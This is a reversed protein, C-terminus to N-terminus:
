DLGEAKIIKAYEWASARITRKMTTRDVSVLGFKPWFGKDWEFNDLLSWCMFGRVDAGETMAAHVNRLLNKIYWGRLEDQSDSVGAETIIIPKHYRKALDNLLIRIGEPHLGWGMESPNQQDMESKFGKFNFKFYYNLGIYDQCDKIRDLFLHDGWWNWFRKVLPSVIRGSATYYSNNKAVGIQAHPSHKKIARYAARHAAPMVSFYARIAKWFSKEQPPWVGFFYSFTSLVEPENITCWYTVDDGFEQAMRDAYREFDKATEPNMFGGQASVWHPVTFHFLTVLPEIQRARLAKIVHRYHQIEAEDYEGRRPEVRSWEISFRHANHHLSKAIDFDEQYRNYHDVSKGSIYNLPDIADNKIRYWHVSPTDFAKASGRALVASHEKEWDSWNNNMGGEVQHASTASGWLFGKPFHLLPKRNM